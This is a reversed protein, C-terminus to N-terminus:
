AHGLHEALIRLGIAVLILGGFVSTRHGFRTGITGGIRIGLLTFAAAVVGIVLAPMWISVGVLAMSLGVALADISTATSLVVLSWGRTPDACHTREDAAALGDRIMRSGVVALLGFAVWHDFGQIVHAVTSGALWGIVPMLGQFLGFHFSLRFQQRGDPCGLVISTGIAVAFADMALAIALGLLLVPEM